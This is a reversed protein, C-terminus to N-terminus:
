LAVVKPALGSQVNDRWQIDLHIWWQCRSARPHGWPGGLTPANHRSWAQRAPSPTGGRQLQVSHSHDRLGTKARCGRPREGQSCNRDVLESYLLTQRSGVGEIASITELQQCARSCAPPVM